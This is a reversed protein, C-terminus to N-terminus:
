PWPSPPGNWPQVSWVLVVVVVVVLVVIWKNPEIWRCDRGGRWYIYISVCVRRLANGEARSLLLLLGASGHNYDAAAVPKAYFRELYVCVPRNMTDPKAEREPCLLLLTSQPPPVFSCTLQWCSVLLVARAVSAHTIGNISLSLSGAVFWGKYVPAPLGGVM